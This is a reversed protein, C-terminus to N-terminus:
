LKYNIIEDSTTVIIRENEFEKLNNKMVDGYNYWTDGDLLFLFKKDLHNNLVTNLTNKIEDIVNSQHGGMQWTVKAITLWEGNIVYDITKPVGDLKMASNGLNKVNIGNEKLYKLQTHESVNQNQPSKSFLSAYEPINATKILYDDVSGTSFRDVHNTIKFLLWADKKSVDSSELIRKATEMTFNVNTLGKNKIYNNYYTEFKSKRMKKSQKRESKRRQSRSTEM